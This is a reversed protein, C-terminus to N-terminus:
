TPKFVMFYLNAFPLITAIVGFVIWYKSLSWYSEPIENESSFSRALKAQKIQIPVLILVWIVGSTIFLWMGWSLWFVDSIEGFKTAMLEGTILILLVSVPTFTFDNITVVRQAYAVVAPSQTKDALIKWVATVVFNGLFLVVGLHHISKLLLYNDM